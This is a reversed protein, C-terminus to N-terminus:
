RHIETLANNVDNVEIFSMCDHLKDSKPDRCRDCKDNRRVVVSRQSWPAYKNIDTPGWLVIIPVNFYCALHMVGSDHTIALSCKKLVYALQRLNIKGALSLSSKKMSKQIENVINVDKADGVFVVKYSASLHDAVAAFGQAHWRKASDAAGPAIVIFDQGELEPAIAWQFFQEDNKTTVIAFKDQSPRDFDYLQRLRGLHMDRKHGTISRGFLLPTAYRPMLFLALATRRLDVVCDYHGKCLDIFWTVKNRLPAQKEFVKIGFNPNDEFLSVAKPGVVVDIRAEPFDHRLIDLVPCTLVVDGINTQSVVL